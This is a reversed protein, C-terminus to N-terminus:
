WYPLLSRSIDGKYVVFGMDEALEIMYGYVHVEKETSIGEIVLNNRKITTM